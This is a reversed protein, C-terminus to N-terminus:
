LKIAKVLKIRELCFKCTIGGKHVTKTEFEASSEGPGFVHGSCFLRSADGHHDAYHWSADNTLEGDDDTILKVLTHM